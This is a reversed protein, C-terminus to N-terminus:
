RGDPPNLRYNFWIIYREGRETTCLAPSGDRNTEVAPPPHLRLALTEFARPTVYLPRDLVRDTWFPSQPSPPQGRELRTLAVQGGSVDTESKGLLDELFVPARRPKATVPTPEPYLGGGDAPEAVAMLLSLSLEYPDAETAGAYEFVATELLVFQERSLAHRRGKRWDVLRSGPLGSRRSLGRVGGIGPEVLLRNILAAFQGVDAIRLHHRSVSGIPRAMEHLLVASTGQQALSPLAAWAFAPRM